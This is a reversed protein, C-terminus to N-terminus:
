LFQLAPQAPMVLFYFSYDVNDALQHVPHTLRLTFVAGTLLFLYAKACLLSSTGIQFRLDQRCFHWLRHCLQTAILLTLSDFYAIRSILVPFRKSKFRNHHEEAPVGGLIGLVGGRPDKVLLGHRDEDFVIEPFEGVIVGQQGDGLQLM